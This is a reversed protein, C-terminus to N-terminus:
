APRIKKEVWKRIIKKDDKIWASNSAIKEYSQLLSRDAGPAQNKAFFKQADKLTKLDSHNGLPSLLRSLFHGGEGYKKLLIDWNNKVFQWTLDRGFPNQWLSALLHPADQTKVDNGMIFRLTKEILIKDKLSTLAYGYRDKEEHM